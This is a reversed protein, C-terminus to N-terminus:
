AIRTVFNCDLQTPRIASRLSQRFKRGLQNGKLHCRNDSADLRSQGCLRCRCANRNNEHGPGIRHCRPEHGTDASRAAIDGPNAKKINRNCAFPECEQTLQNGLGLDDSNQLVRVKRLILGLGAFYLRCCASHSLFDNRKLRAAWLFDICGKRGHRLGTGTREQHACTGEKATPTALQNPKGSEM